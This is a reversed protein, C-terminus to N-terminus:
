PTEERRDTEAAPGSRRLGQICARLSEQARHFHTKISGEALRLLRAIDPGTQGRLKCAVVQQQRASLRRLCHQLQQQQEDDLLRDEPGGGPAALADPEHDSGNDRLARLYDVGVGHAITGLLPVFRGREEYRPWMKYLRLFVEQALDFSDDANFGRRRFRGVVRNWYTLYYPKFSDLDAM